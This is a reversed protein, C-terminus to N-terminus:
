NGNVTKCVNAKLEAACAAQQQENIRKTILDTGFPSSSNLAVLRCVSDNPDSPYYSAGIPYQPVTPDSFDASVIGAIDNGSTGAIEFCDATHDSPTMSWLPAGGLASPWTTAGALCPCGTAASDLIESEIFVSMETTGDAVLNYNGPETVISAVVADFPIYETSGDVFADNVIVGALSFATGPDTFNAGRVVFRQNTWDVTVSDLIVTATAAAVPKAAVSIGQYSFLLATFLPIKYLAHPNM